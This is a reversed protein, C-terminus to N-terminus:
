APWRGSGGLAVIGARQTERGPGLVDSKSRAGGARRGRRIVRRGLGGCISPFGPRLPYGVTRFSFFSLTAKVLVTGFPAVMAHRRLWRREENDWWETMERIRSHGPHSRRVTANHTSGCNSPYLIPRIQGEVREEIGASKPPTNIGVQIESSLSVLGM